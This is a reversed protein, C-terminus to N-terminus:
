ADVLELTVDLNKCLKELKEKYFDRDQRMEGLAAQLEVVHGSLYDIRALVAGIDSTTEETVASVILGHDSLMQCVPCSCSISTM